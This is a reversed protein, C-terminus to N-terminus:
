RRRSEPSLPPQVVSAKGLPPLRAPDVVVEAEGRDEIIALVADPAVVTAFVLGPAAGAATWRQAFRRACEPDTTWAMGRRRGWSSGRYISTPETPAPRAPRALFGATRVLEVWRAQGFVREPWEPHSWSDLVAEGFAISDQSADTDSLLFRIHDADDSACLRLWAEYSSAAANM